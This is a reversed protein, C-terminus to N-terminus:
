SNIMDLGLDLGQSGSIPDSEYCIWWYAGVILLVMVVIAAAAIGRLMVVAAVIAVGVSGVVAQTSLWSSRPAPGIM